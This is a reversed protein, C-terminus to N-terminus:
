KRERLKKFFQILLPRPIKALAPPPIEDVTLRQLVREAAPWNKHIDRALEEASDLESDAMALAYEVILTEVDIGPVPADKPPPAAPRGKTTDPGADREHLLRKTLERTENMLRARREEESQDIPALKLLEIADSPTPIYVSQGCAPCKTRKGAHEDAARFGKGCHECKFEISM